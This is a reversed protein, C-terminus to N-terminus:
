GAAASKYIAACETYSQNVSVSRGTCSGLADIMVPAFCIEFGLAQKPSRLTASAADGSFGVRSVRVGSM